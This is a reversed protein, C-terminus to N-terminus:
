DASNALAVLMITARSAPVSAYEAVGKLVNVVNVDEFPGYSIRPFCLKGRNAVHGNM